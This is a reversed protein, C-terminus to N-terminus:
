IVKIGFEELIQVLDYLPLGMASFYDGEIKKVIVAGLEQIAFAGAKDLPEGSAVYNDIESKTLKKVYAKAVVAKSITKKSKTDIVTLGTIISVAKGSIKRLMKKANLETHPKGLLEDGLAIFTDAGIVLANSYRIAVDQAKGKSLFKALKNPKMKLNMDEEYGSAVVQFKLGIKSLIEKRRPSTSALIIKKM